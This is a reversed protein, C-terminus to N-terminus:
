CILWLKELFFFAISELICMYIFQILMNIYTRFVQIIYQNSLVSIKM